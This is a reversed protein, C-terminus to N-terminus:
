HFTRGNDSHTFIVASTDMSGAMGNVRCGQKAFVVKSATQNASPVHSAQKALLQALDLYNGQYYSFPIM